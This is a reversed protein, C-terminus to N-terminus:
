RFGGLYFKEPLSLEKTMEELWGSALDGAFVALDSRVPQVDLYSATFFVGKRAITPEGFGNSVLQYGRPLVATFSVRADLSRALHESVIAAASALEEIDVSAHLSRRVFDLARLFENNRRTRWAAVGNGRGPVRERHEPM